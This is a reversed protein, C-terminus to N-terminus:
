SQGLVACENCIMFTTRFVDDFDDAFHGGIKKTATLLLELGGGHRGVPEMDGLKKDAVDVVDLARLSQM